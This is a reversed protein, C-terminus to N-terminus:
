RKGLSLYFPIEWEKRIEKSVKKVIKLRHPGPNTAHVDVFGQLGFQDSSAHNRKLLPVQIEEDDLFVSIRNSYCDLNAKWRAQRSANDKGMTDFKSLECDKGMIDTEHDFVPIFLNIADETIIESPIEPGLLYDLHENHTAYFENYVRSADTSADNIILYRYNSNVLQTMGFIIGMFLM